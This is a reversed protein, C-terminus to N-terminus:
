KEDSSTRTTYMINGTSYLTDNSSESKYLETGSSDTIVTLHHFIYEGKMNYGIRSYNFETLVQEGDFGNTYTEINNTVEFGPEPNNQFMGDFPNYDGFKGDDGSHDTDSDHSSGDSETGSDKEFDHVWDLLKDLWSATPDGAVGDTYKGTDDGVGGYGTIPLAVYDGKNMNLKTYGIDNPDTINEVSTFYFLNYEVIDLYTFSRSLSYGCERQTEPNNIDKAIQSPGQGAQVTYGVLFGGVVYPELGELEIADIVRNGSFAYPSYFPYKGTLPDVAFFRGIRPDHM